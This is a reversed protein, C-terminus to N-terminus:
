QPTQKKILVHSINYTAKEKKSLNLHLKFFSHATCGGSLLTAAIRSSAMALDICKMKHLKALLLNIIFTKGTGREGEISSIIM